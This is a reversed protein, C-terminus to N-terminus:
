ASDEVGSGTRAVTHEFMSQVGALELVRSVPQSPDALTFSRGGDTVTRSLQVLVRLGMSDMFTVQSCDLIVDTDGAAWTDAETQLQAHIALDIDGAITVDLHQGSQQTTSTYGM